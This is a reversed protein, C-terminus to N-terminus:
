KFESGEIHLDLRHFADVIAQRFTGNHRLFSSVHGGRVVRVECGRWIEKIDLVDLPRTIYLDDKAVVVIAGKECVPVPYNKLNSFEDIVLRMYLTTLNDPSNKSRLEGLTNTLAGIGTSVKTVYHLQSLSFKRSPVPTSLVLQSSNDPTNGYKESLMQEIDQDTKRIITKIESIKADCLQEQLVNWM